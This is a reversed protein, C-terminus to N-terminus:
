GYVKGSGSKEAINRRLCVIDFACVCGHVNAKMDVLALSEFTFVLESHLEHHNTAQEAPQYITAGLLLPMIRVNVYLAIRDFGGDIGNTINVPAEVQQEL